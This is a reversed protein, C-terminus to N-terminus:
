SPGEVDLDENLAAASANREVLEVAAQGDAGLQAAKEILQQRINAVRSRGPHYDWGPGIGVPVQHIEGTRPNTWERTPVEPAADPGAKGLERLQTEDVQIASCRCGWDNPPYWTDWFPDDVRFVMGDWQAHEPRTNGDDVADYLLYPAADAQEQIQAWHGAAYSTKINTQFITKLRRISGLQVDRLEGTLPDQMTARGWWGREVLTPEIRKRFQALTEGNAIADDVASRMDRLLDLDMMKAVTFAADHEEHLMDAWSFSPQFGKQRFFALADAPALSMDIAITM